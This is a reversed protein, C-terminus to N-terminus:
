LGLGYLSSPKFTTKTLPLQTSTSTTPERDMNGEVKQSFESMNVQQEELEEEPELEEDSSLVTLKHSEPVDAM